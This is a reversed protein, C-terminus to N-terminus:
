EPAQESGRGKGSQGGKRGEHGEPKCALERDQPAFCAGSMQEDNRGTFSCADGATLSECADIAVQPPGRRGNRQGRSDDEAAFSHTIPNLMVLLAANAYIAHRLKM